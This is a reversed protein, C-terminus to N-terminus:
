GKVGGVTLSGLLRKQFALFLILIPVTVIVTGALRSPVNQLGAVATGQVLDFLGKAMTPYSPMYLLPTQYDNWFGIFNILFVTLITNKTLPLSIKVMIAWNSAGDVKAAESYSAPMAKYVNYFVLFYMGLFHAKMIWLGYIKDYLKLRTALELEAPLTGVLPIIMTVIVVTYIVKSFRFAYRACVYATLCPVITSAVGCGVSYLLSYVLLMEVYVNKGTTSPKVYFSNFIKGINFTWKQPFLQYPRDTFEVIPEKFSAFFGWLLLGLLSVAYIALVVLLIIGFASLAVKKSRNKIKEM